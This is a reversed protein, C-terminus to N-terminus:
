REPNRTRRRIARLACASSPGAPDSSSPESAPAAAAAPETPQPSSNDIRLLLGDDTQREEAITFHKRVDVESVCPDDFDNLSNATWFVIWGGHELGRRLTDIQDDLVAGSPRADSGDTPAAPLDENLRRTLM